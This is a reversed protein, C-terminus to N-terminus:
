KMKHNIWKAASREVGQSAARKTDLLILFVGQCGSLKAPRIQSCSCVLVTPNNINAVLMASVPKCASGLGNSCPIFFCPVTPMYKQIHIKKTRNKKESARWKLTLLLSLYYYTYYSFPPTEQQQEKYDQLKGTRRSTSHGLGNRTHPAMTMLSSPSNNMILSILLIVNSIPYESGYEHGYSVAAAQISLNLRLFM